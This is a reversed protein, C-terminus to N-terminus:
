GQKEQAVQGGLRLKRGTRVEEEASPGEEFASTLLSSSLGQGIAICQGERDAPQGLPVWTLLPVQGKARFAPKPVKM